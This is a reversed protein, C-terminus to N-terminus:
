AVCSSSCRAFARISPREEDSAAASDEEVSLRAASSATETARSPTSTRAASCTAASSVSLAPCAVASFEMASYLASSEVCSAVIAACATSCPSSWFNYEASCAFIPFNSACFAGLAFRVENSRPLPDFFFFFFPACRRRERWLPM